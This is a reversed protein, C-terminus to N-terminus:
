ERVWEPPAVRRLASLVEENTLTVGLPLQVSEGLKDTLAPEVVEGYLLDYVNSEGLLKKVEALAVEARDGLQVNIEFTDRDDVFYPEAEDIAAEVQERLWESPVTTRVAEVLKGSPIDVGLPLEGVALADEIAPDVVREFLLEYADAKRLLSELEDVLIKVQEGARLTFEFEDREGTLYRGVQDFSQEVLGQVWVPPVARNVSLVIDQTSLGSTILPTEELGEGVKQRELERREDIASTLLDVLVFEYVDAKRMEEPYFDPDLFTDNVQLFMLTLLLLVFFVVGLPISIMRGIILM